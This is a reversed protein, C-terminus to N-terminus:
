NENDADDTVTLLKNDRFGSLTGSITKYNGDIYFTKKNQLNIVRIGVTYIKGAAHYTDYITYQFNSNTFYVYNLDEADNQIGGGRLYYFYKFKKWSSNLKDPFEFEIKSKSGFRYVIYENKKDKALVVHRGNKTDFSFILQENDLLYKQGFTVLPFFLIIACRIFKMM